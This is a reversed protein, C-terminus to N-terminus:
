WIKGPAALLSLIKGALGAPLSIAPFFNATAGALSGTLALIAKPDFV